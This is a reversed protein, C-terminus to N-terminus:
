IEQPADDTSSVFKPNVIWRERVPRRTASTFQGPNVTPCSQVPDASQSTEAPALPSMEPSNLPPLHTESSGSPFLSSPIVTDPTHCQDFLMVHPDSLDISDGSLDSSTPNQMPISKATTVIFDDTDCQYPTLKRLYQRNRKSIRRSGDIKVLYSDHNLVEVIKGTKSWRRPNNGSQDQISVIDGAKLPPLSRSRAHLAKDTKIHRKAYARERQDATLRWEQRPTYRGPSIPLFDRLVRGFIVQAPSVGTLADPTNRHSLLARAMADTNLGGNPGLCDSVLRKAHKVALEARKNSRPHYASSIRQEIGWRACFDKFTHSTFISAGDTSLMEPVGFTAFYDKLAAILAESTDQKLKLVSLWNSYRDALAAYTHGATTFFDCVVSQFPYVPAVPPRPPMAPNSPAIKICTPCNLKAHMLDEKYNPWYLTTSLRQCMTSLGAHGAHVHDVIRSRLSKPIVPRENVLVVPGITTLMHRHRDYPLLRTDWSKSDDPLGRLISSHLLQYDPCQRCANELMDWTIAQLSQTTVHAIISTAPNNCSEINSMAVGLILGDINNEQCRHYGNITPSSVWDPPGMHYSYALDVNAENEDNHNQADRRRSFTDAVVNKKGSVHCPYFKFRLTKQKLRFLRPNPIDELSTSGFIAVLPKHDM